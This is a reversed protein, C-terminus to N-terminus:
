DGMLAAAMIDVVADEDPLPEAVDGTRFARIQLIAQRLLMGLGNVAPAGATAWAEALPTPWHGYVVDYLLGGGVALRRATEEPLAAGGPLTSVTLPFSASAVASPPVVSVAVSLRAGLAALADGADPNRAVVEVARAGLQALAVLASTATAGAGVIRATEIGDIGHACVDAVIGGVDTNFGLRESGRLVLTNVAGTLEAPRDHRTSAAFAEAKLPFTLSLGRFSADLSDLERRFEAATVRRRGYSWDWGLAAYASTHIRPSLSHAIPDGWVELKSSVAADATPM